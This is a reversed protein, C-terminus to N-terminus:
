FKLAKAWEQKEFALTILDETTLGPLDVPRGGGGDGDGDGHGPRMVHGLGLREIWAARERELVEDDQRRLEETYSGGGTSFGSVSGSISSGGAVWGYVGVPRVM